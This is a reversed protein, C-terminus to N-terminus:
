LIAKACKYGETNYPLGDVVSRIQQINLLEEPYSFKAVQAIAAKDIETWVLELVM